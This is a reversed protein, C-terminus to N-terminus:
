RLIEVGGEARLAAIYEQIAVRREDQFMNAELQEKVQEFPPLNPQQSSLQNYLARLEAEGPKTLDAEDVIIRTMEQILMNEAIITRLSQPTLGQQELADQLARQSSFQATMQEYEEEVETANAIIGRREAEQLLLTENVIQRLLQDKFEEIEAPIQLDIGQQRAQIRAQIFRADFEEETIEEGAVVAVVVQQSKGSELAAEDTVSRDSMDSNESVAGTPTEEVRRSGTPTLRPSDDNAGPTHPSETGGGCAPSLVTFVAIIGLLFTSERLPHTRKGVASSSPGLTRPDKSMTTPHEITASVQGM